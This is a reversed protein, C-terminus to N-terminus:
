AAGKFEAPVAPAGMSSHDVLHLYALKLAGLEGALAIYQAEVGEFAGTSNFVGHPSVRIGVRQAGIAELPPVPSTSPSATASPRRAAGPTRARTSTRM